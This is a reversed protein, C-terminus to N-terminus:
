QVPQLARLATDDGFNTIYVPMDTIPFNADVNLQRTNGFADTVTCMGLDIGLTTNNSEDPVWATFVESTGKDWLYAWIDTNTMALRPTSTATVGDLQRILTATTFWSPRISDDNRMLGAGAHQTGNSGTERYIFVKEVGNALIIMLNRPLKAAQHRETRGIPGDVDYGTETMWIEKGPANIDRWDSLDQLLEEYTKTLADGSNADSTATEPDQLGSYYHVNIIDTFDLPTKGDSYQYTGLQGVISLDIGAYGGHSITATPDALRAAEAGARFMEFYEEMTGVFFGWNPADLNPENWLEFHNITNLGSLGDATKLDAVPHTQSGFRAVTQFVADAFYQNDAPPYNPRNRTVDAPASTAWEPCQLIYPLMIFGADKYSQMYSTHPVRWPSVGGSYDYSNEGTSFFLWKMNEFRVYSVGLSEHIPIYEPKAVNMGFRSAASRPVTTDPMVFYNSQFLESGVSSQADVGLYYSGTELPVSTSLAVLGFSRPEVTVSTSRSQIVDGVSPIGVFDNGAGDYVYLAKPTRFVPLSEGPLTHYRLRLYRASVPGTFPLEVLGWKTEMDFGLLEPIDTYTVGDQSYSFDVLKIWNADGSQYNMKILDRVQGLDVYQFMETFGSNMWLTSFATSVDDDTLTNDQIVEGNLEIWSVTGQAHDNGYVPDVLAEDYLDRNTQLSYDISVSAAQDSYNNVVMMGGFPVGPEGWGPSSMSLELPQEPATIQTAIVLGDAGLSTPGAGPTFWVFSVAQLPFDIVGNKDTQPYAQVFSGPTTPIELWNWGLWDGNQLAYLNEGEADRLQIGVTKVNSQDHLYVWVGFYDVAGPINTSLLYDGKAQHKAEGFFELATTGAKADVEGYPEYATFEMNWDYITLVGGEELPNLLVRQVDTGLGAIISNAPIVDTAIPSEGVVEMANLYAYGGQLVSLNLVIEGLANPRVKALTAVSANNANPRSGSGIGPGSSILTDSVTNAGVAEYLGERVTAIDRSGFITFTYVLTPDLNSLTLSGGGNWSNVYYCDSVANLEALAGVSALPDLTGSANASWGSSFTLTIGTNEGSTDILNHLPSYTYVPNWSNGNTDPQSPPPYFFDLLLQQSKLCSASFLVCALAVIHIKM